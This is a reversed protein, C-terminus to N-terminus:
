GTALAFERQPTRRSAKAFNGWVPFELRGWSGTTMSEGFVPRAPRMRRFSQSLKVPFMDAPLGSNEAVQESRGLFRAPSTRAIAQVLSGTIMSDLQNPIASELRQSRVLSGVPCPAGNARPKALKPGAAPGGNGVLPIQLIADPIPALPDPTPPFEDPNPMCSVTREARTQSTMLGLEPHGSAIRLGLSGSWTNSVM